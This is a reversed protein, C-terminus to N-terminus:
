KKAKFEEYKEVIMNWLMIWFKSFAAGLAIGAIFSIM